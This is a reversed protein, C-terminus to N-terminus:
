NSHKFYCFFFHCATTVRYCIMTGLSHFSFRTAMTKQVHGNRLQRMFNLYVQGYWLHLLHPFKAYMSYKSHATPALGKLFVKCCM